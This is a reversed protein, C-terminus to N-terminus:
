HAQEKELVFALIWGIYAHRVFSVKKASFDFEVTLAKLIEAGALLQEPTFVKNVRAIEKSAAARVAEDPIASLDITPHRGPTKQLLQCYRAVDDRTIPVYSTRDGPHMYTALAWTAGGSLYIRERETLGMKGDLDKRLAPTLVKRRAAVARDASSETGPQKAICDSFTVSGYPIGFLVYRGDKSRYGGKTNGSGIDILVSSSANRPPIVANITLEAERRVDVFSMPEGSASRIAAMLAKRNADTAEKDGSIASFLGSSGVVFINARPIHHEKQMKNLLKTVAAATDELARASFKKSAALGATLTTNQTGTMLVKIEPGAASSTVDLAIAKVGKAGIEIGGYLAAAAPTGGLLALLLVVIPASRRIQSSSM